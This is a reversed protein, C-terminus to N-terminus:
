VDTKKILFNLWCFDSREMMDESAWCDIIQIGPVEGALKCFWDETVNTFYRGNDDEGTIIGSKFSAYAIGDPKLADPLKEVFDKIEESKLHLLSANAWIGDYKKEPIWDQIRVCSVDAGSYESAIRCMEPSADIGEVEFGRDKFYKMDRGSGVGIDIICGGPRIQAIFRDCNEAMNVSVTDNFYQEANKDYYDITKDM